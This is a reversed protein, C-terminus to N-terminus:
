SFNAGIQTVYWTTGNDWSVAKLMDVANATTTLTTGSSVEVASDWTVVHTGTSDQKLVITLECFRTGLQSTSDWNSAFDITTDDELTLVFGNGDFPNITYTTDIDAEVFYGNGGNYAQAYNAFLNGLQSNIGDVGYATDIGSLDSYVDQASIKQSRAEWADGNWFLMDGYNIATKKQFLIYTGSDDHVYWDGAENTPGTTDFVFNALPSGWDWGPITPDFSAPGYLEESSSTTDLYFWGPGGTSPSPAGVGDILTEWDLNEWVVYSPVNLKENVLEDVAAQVDTADLGSSTGDYTIESAEDHAAYVEDIAAQVDTATLGSTINDYAIESADNQGDLNQVLEDIAAQVDTATLGSAINDYTIESAENQADLGNDLDDALEDIAAQVDNASLGSNTNDYNALVADNSTTQWEQAMGNWVIIDGSQVVSVNRNIQYVQFLDGNAVPPNVSLVAIYNSGPNANAYSLATAQNFTGTQFSISGGLSGGGVWSGSVKEWLPYGGISTTSFYWDGNSGETTPQVAGVLCDGVVVSNYEALLTFTTTTADTDVQVADDLLGDVSASVEDIAGQTNTATLGSTTNDYEQYQAENGVITFFAM